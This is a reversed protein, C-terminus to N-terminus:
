MVCPERTIYLDYGTCLYPTEGCSILDDELMHDNDVMDQKDKSGQSDEHSDLVQDWAGGGHLRAILDICVMSTHRLPHRSNSMDHAKCIIKNTRPNVVVGGVPHSIGNKKGTRAVNIAEIM